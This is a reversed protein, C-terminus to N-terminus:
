SLFIFIEVHYLQSGSGKSFEGQCKLRPSEWTGSATCSSVTDKPGSFFGEKCTYRVQSGLTSTYNGVIYADPVEPPTGCDIESFLNIDFEDGHLYSNEFDLIERRRGWEGERCVYVGAM